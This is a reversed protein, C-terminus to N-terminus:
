RSKVVTGNLKSCTIRINNQRAEDNPTYIKTSFSAIETEINANDLSNSNNSPINNTEFNNINSTDNTNIRSTSYSNNQEQTNSLDNNCGTLSFSVFLLIILFNKM